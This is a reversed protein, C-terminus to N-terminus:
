QKMKHMVILSTRFSLQIVFAPPAKAKEQSQNAGGEGQFQIEGGKIHPQGGGGGGGGGNSKPGLCNGGRSCFGSIFM